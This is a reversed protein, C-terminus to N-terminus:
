RNGNIIKKFSEGFTSSEIKGLPNYYICVGHVTDWFFCAMVVEVVVQDLIKRSCHNKTCKNSLSYTM